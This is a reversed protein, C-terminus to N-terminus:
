GFLVIVLSWGSRICGTRDAWRRILKRWLRKSFAKASSRQENSITQFTRTERIEHRVYGLKLLVDGRTKTQIQMLQANVREPPM